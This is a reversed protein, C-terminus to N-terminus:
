NYKTCKMFARISDWINIAIFIAVFVWINWDWFSTIQHTPMKTIEVIKSLFEQNFLLDDGLLIVLFICLAINLGANAIALPINWNTSIFKWISFSIQIVAFILIAGIYVDLREKVFLPTIEIPNNDIKVYIGILNAKFYVLATFFVTCFMTFITEGRSIKGKSTLSITPLDDLSWKKKTFIGKGDNSNREIIAFVLTVWLCAQLISEIVNGLMDMVFRVSMESISGDIPPNFAWEILTISVLVATVIGIVLKLVAFYRDYLGPGILYRKQTNYEDALNKPNGLNELVERIQSETPNEPLMDEINTHLERSVDERSDEPLRETVAYVYRDILKM